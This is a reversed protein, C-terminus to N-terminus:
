LDLTTEALKDVIVDELDPEHHFTSYMFPAGAEYYRMIRLIAARLHLDTNLGFNEYPLACDTLCFDPHRLIGAVRLPPEYLFKIGSQTLFDAIIKKAKSRVRFGVHTM